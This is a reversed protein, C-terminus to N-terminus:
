QIRCIRISGNALRWTEFKFGHKRAYAHAASQVRCNTFKVSKQAGPHSAPVDFYDNVEMLGFPYLPKRGKRPSRTVSPGGKRITFEFDVASKEEVFDVTDEILQDQDAKPLDRLNELAQVTRFLLTELDTNQM